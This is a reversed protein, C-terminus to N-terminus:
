RRRPTADISYVHSEDHLTLSRKGTAKFWARALRIAQHAIWDPADGPDAQLLREIAEARGSMGTRQVRRDLREVAEPTLRAQIMRKGDRARWRAQRAASTM